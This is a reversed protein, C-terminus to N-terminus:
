LQRRIFSAIKRGPDPLESVFNLIAKLYPAALKIVEEENETPRAMIENLSTMATAANHYQALLGAVQSIPGIARSSLM